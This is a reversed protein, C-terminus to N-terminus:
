KYQKSKISKAPSVYNIIANDHSSRTELLIQSRLYSEKILVVWHKVNYFNNCCLTMCTFWYTTLYISLFRYMVIRMKLAIQM